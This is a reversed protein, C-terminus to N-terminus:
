SQRTSPSRSTPLVAPSRSAWPLPRVCEVMQDGFLDEGEPEAEAPGDSEGDADSGVDLDQVAGEIDSIDENEVDSSM